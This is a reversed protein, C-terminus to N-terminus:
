AVTRSHADDGPQAVTQAKLAGEGSEIIESRWAKLPNQDGLNPALNAVPWAFLDATGAGDGMGSVCANTQTVAIIDFGAHAQNMM